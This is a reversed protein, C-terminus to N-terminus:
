PLSNKFQQYREAYTEGEKGGLSQWVEYIHEIRNDPNPHTSLFEPPQSSGVMKEFFGAVGRADYSTAYLYKVAYEDSQNEDSRSFALMTVGASLDAAIQALLSPNEGLVVSLLVQLGYAKTMQKTSHRRAAHAMEHGMVGAFEAENDLFNILGSYFYIYGGPTCFANLVTDNRIIHVAWTFETDYDVLGTGLLSDRVREIHQYAVPYQNKQLLPYEAPNDLIHQQVQLGLQKDDEISFINIGNNDKNCSALFILGTMVFVLSFVVIRKM